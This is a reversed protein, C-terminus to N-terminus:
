RQRLLVLGAALMWGLGVPILVFGLVYQRPVFLTVIALLGLGGALYGWRLLWKPVWDGRGAQSILFPGAGILLATALDDARVAIWGVVGALTVSSASTDPAVQFVLSMMGLFAMIALPVAVSYCTQAVKAPGPRKQSLAVLARGAIGMIFVGLIWFSLNAVVIKKVAASNALFAPMQRELLAAWLDVGSGIFFVAGVLMLIASGISTYAALRRITPDFTTESPIM